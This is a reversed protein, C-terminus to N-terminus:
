RDPREGTRHRESAKTTIGCEGSRTLRRVMLEHVASARVRRYAFTRKSQSKFWTDWARTIVNALREEYSRLIPSVYGEVPKPM